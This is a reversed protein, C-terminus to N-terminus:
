LLTRPSAAAAMGWPRRASRTQRATLPTLPGDAVGFIASAPAWGPPPRITWARAWSRRLRGERVRSSEGTGERGATESRATQGSPTEPPRQRSSLIRATVLLGVLPPLAARMAQQSEAMGASGGLYFLGGAASAALVWTAGLIAITRKRM